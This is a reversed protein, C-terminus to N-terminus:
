HVRLVIKGHSKGQENLRQAEAAKELPMVEALRPKIKGNAVLNALDSLGKSNQQTLFFKANVGAQEALDSRVPGVTTIVLGDKKVCQYSRNLTEGGVLDVVADLDKFFEEFRQAKYDVVREVGIQKLYAEDNQAANAFVQMGFSKAVQVAMSGVAGAAGHILVTRAGSPKVNDAILQYATLGPTPLSAAVDFSLVEPIKAIKDPICIGFEAYSGQTFGFVRDGTKYDQVSAGVKEIVGAFDYGMTLPFQLPMMEKMLGKRVKWDYPNVGADHIRVLVEGAKPTPTEMEEMKLEDAEGYKSIRIAKM